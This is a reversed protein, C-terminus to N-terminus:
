QSVICKKRRLSSRSGLSVQMGLFLAKELDGGDKCKAGESEVSKLRVSPEKFFGMENELEADAFNKKKDGMIGWVDKM